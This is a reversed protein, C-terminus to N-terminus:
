LAVSTPWPLYKLDVNMYSGTFICVCAYMKHTCTHLYTHTHTHHHCHLRGALRYVLINAADAGRLTPSKRYGPPPKELYVVPYWFRVLAGESQLYCEVQVLENHQPPGSSSCVYVKCVCM